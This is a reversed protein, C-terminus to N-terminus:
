VGPSLSLVQRLYPRLPSPLFFFSFFFLLPLFNRFMSTRISSADVFAPFLMTSARMQTDETRTHTVKKAKEVAQKLQEIEQQKAAVEAAEAGTSQNARLATLQSSQVTLVRRANSLGSTVRVLRGEASVVCFVFLLVSLVDPDFVVMCVSM